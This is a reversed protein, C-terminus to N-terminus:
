PGVQIIQQIMPAEAYGGTASTTTSTQDSSLQNADILCEGTGTFSVIASASTSTPTGTSTVACAGSSSLPDTSLTIVNGSNPTIPDEVSVTYTDGISKQIPATSTFIISQTFGINTQGSGGGDCSASGADLKGLWVDSAGHWHFDGNPVYVVGDLEQGGPGLSMTAPPPLWLSIGAYTGTSMPWINSSAPAFVGGKNYLFNGGVGSTIPGGVGDNFIFEGSNLVLMPTSNNVVNPDLLNFNYVGPLLYTYTFANPGGAAPVTVVNATASALTDYQPLGVSSPSTIGSLPDPVVSSIPDSTVNTGLDTPPSVTNNPPDSYYDVPSAYVKNKSGGDSVTTPGNSDIVLQGNVVMNPNSASCASIATGSSGNFQAPVIPGIPQPVPGSGSGSLTWDQPTANLNFCFSIGHPHCNSNADVGTRNTATVDVNMAVNEVGSTPTWGYQWPGLTAGSPGEVAVALNNFAATTLYISSVLSVSVPQLSETCQNRVLQYELLGFPSTVGSPAESYSVVTDASASSQWWLGLIQTGSGCPAPNPPNALTTFQQASQIDRYFTSAIVQSSSTAGLRDSASSELQFMSILALSLAGVLLPTVVMVILLEILTFGSRDDQRRYRTEHRLANPEIAKISRRRIGM